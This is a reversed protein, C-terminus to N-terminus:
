IIEKYRYCNKDQNYQLLSYPLYLDSWLEASQESKWRITQKQPNSEASGHEFYGNFINSRRRRNRDTYNELIIYKRLPSPHERTGSRSPTLWPSRRATLLTENKPNITSLGLRYNDALRSAPWASEMTHLIGHTSVDLLQVQNRLM